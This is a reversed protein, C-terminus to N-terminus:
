KETSDATKMSQSNHINQEGIRTSTKVSESWTKRKAQDYNKKKKTITKLGILKIHKDSETWEAAWPLVLDISRHWVVLTLPM